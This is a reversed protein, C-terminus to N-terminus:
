NVPNWEYEDVGDYRDVEVEEDNELFDDDNSEHSFDYCQQRIEAWSLGHAWQRIDQELLYPPREQEMINAHRGHKVVVLLEKGTENSCLLQKEEAVGFKELDEPSAIKQEFRQRTGPKIVAGPANSQTSRYITVSAGSDVGDRQFLIDNWTSPQPKRWYPDAMFMDVKAFSLMRSNPTIFHLERWGNGYKVLGDLIDYSIEGSSMGLVTLKDLRLGPLLKLVWALRYHVDNDSDIPQLMTPRGGVRVHRIQSLTNLPLVSLKDLMDEPNEFSFLVQGLWLAGAEQKVQSCTRVIALSNPAPKIRKSRIRSVSREGFSLRTSTFLCKYILNRIEGPLQLLM